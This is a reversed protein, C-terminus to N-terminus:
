SQAAKRGFEGDGMGYMSGGTDHDYRSVYGPRGGARSLFTSDLVTRRKVLDNTMVGVWLVCGRGFCLLAFCSVGM